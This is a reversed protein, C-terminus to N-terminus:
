QLFQRKPLEDLNCHVGLAVERTVEQPVLRHLVVHVHDRLTGFHKQAAHKIGAMPAVIRKVQEAEVAEAVLEGNPVTLRVFPTQQPIQFPLLFVDLAALGVEM